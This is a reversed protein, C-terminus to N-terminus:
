RESAGQEGARGQDCGQSLGQKWGQPMRRFHDDSWEAGDSQGHLTFRSQNRVAVRAMRAVRARTCIRASAHLAQAQVLSGTQKDQPRDQDFIPWGSGPGPVNGPVSPCQPLLHRIRGEARIAM